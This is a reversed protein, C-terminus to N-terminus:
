SSLSCQAGGVATEIPKALAHLEEAPILAQMKEFLENEESRIHRSLMEAFELLLEADAEGIVAVRSRLERHEARLQETLPRLESFRDAAPFLVQEEAAFHRAGESDYFGRVDERMHELDGGSLNGRQISRRLRVCLALGHQHERSLPRLSVDRLM